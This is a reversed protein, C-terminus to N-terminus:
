AAIPSSKEVDDGLLKVLTRVSHWKLANPLKKIAKQKQGTSLTTRQGACETAVTKELHKVASVSVGSSEVKSKLTPLIIDAREAFSMRRIMDRGHRDLRAPRKQHDM